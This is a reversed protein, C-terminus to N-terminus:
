IGGSPADAIGQPSKLGDTITHTVSNSSTAIVSVSNSGFNSVYVFENNPNVTLGAPSSGVAIVATIGYTLANIRYINNSYRNAVYVSRGTPSVAISEPGSGVSITKVVSFTSTSIVSVTDSLNNTVYAFSGDPSLAVGVPSSGVPISAVVSLTSNLVALSDGSNQVVYISKGDPSVAVGEPTGGVRVAYKISFNSNNIASVYGGNGFSTAYTFNGNANVAIGFPNVGVTINALIMNTNTNVVSVFSNGHNSVYALSGDPSVAVGVPNTSVTINRIISNNSTDIVSLLDTGGNAVYMDRLPIFDIYTINGNTTGSFASPYYTIGNVSVNDVSFQQGGLYLFRLVSSSSSKGFDSYTVTWRTGSPLGFESFVMERQTTAKGTIYGTSVQNENGASTEIAYHIQITASYYQNDQCTSNYLDIFFNQDPGVRVNVSSESKQMGSSSTVSANTITVPSGYSNGIELVLAGNGCEQSIVTFPSFGSVSYSLSNTPSFIGLSYLIVAVIVVALIAWGYTMMYELASQSKM